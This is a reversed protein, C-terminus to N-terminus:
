PLLPRTSWGVVLDIPRTNGPVKRSGERAHTTEEGNRRRPQPEHGGTCRELGRSTGAVSRQLLLEAGAGSVGAAAQAHVAAPEESAVEGSSPAARRQIPAAVSRTAFLRSTLTQKGPAVGQSQDARAWLRETLSRKLVLYNEIIGNHVVAM